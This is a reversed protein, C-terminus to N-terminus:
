LRTLFVDEVKEKLVEKRLFPDLLWRVYNSIWSNWKEPLRYNKERFSLITDAETINGASQDYFSWPNDLRAEGELKGELFIIVRSQLSLDRDGIGVTSIEQNILKGRDYKAFAMKQEIAGKNCYFCSFSIPHCHPTVKKQYDDCSLNGIKEKSLSGKYIFVDAIKESVKYTSSFEKFSCNIPIKLDFPVGTVYIINRKM